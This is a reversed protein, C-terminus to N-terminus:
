PAGDRPTLVARMAEDRERIEDPTLYKRQVEALRGPTFLIDGLTHLWANLEQNEYIYDDFSFCVWGAGERAAYEEASMARYPFLAEADAARSPPAPPYASLYRHM